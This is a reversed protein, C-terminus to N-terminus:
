FMIMEINVFIREHDKICDLCLVTEARQLVLSGYESLAVIFSLHYFMRSTQM